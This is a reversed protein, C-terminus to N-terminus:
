SETETPDAQRRGMRATRAEVTTRARIEAEVTRRDVGDRARSLSRVDFTEPDADLPLTVGTVTRMIQGDWLARIAVAHAELHQLDEASLPAFTPAMARADEHGLQFAIKTRVTGNVAARVEPSLQGLFQHAVTIGVGLGRAQALMEALDVPLRLVRQFEDIYVYV